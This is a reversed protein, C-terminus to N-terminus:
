KDDVSASILVLDFVHSRDDLRICLKQDLLVDFDKAVDSELQISISLAHCDFCLLFWLSSSSSNFYLFSLPREGFVRFDLRSGDQCSRLHQWSKFSWSVFIPPSNGRYRPYEGVTM